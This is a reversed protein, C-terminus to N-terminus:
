NWNQTAYWNIHSFLLFNGYINYTINYFMKTQSKRTLALKVIIQLYEEIGFEFM